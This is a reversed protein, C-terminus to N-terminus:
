ASMAATIAAQSERVDYTTGDYKVTRFGRCCDIDCGIEEIQYEDSSRSGVVLVWGPRDSWAIKMTVTAPIIERLREGPAM